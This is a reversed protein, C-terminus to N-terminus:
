LTPTVVPPAVRPTATAAQVPTLQRSVIGGALGIAFTVSAAAALAWVPVERYWPRVRAPAFPRWVSGHEPVDWALLQLRVGRLGSIEQRCVDCTALHRDMLRREDADCADYVYDLLREREDCMVPMM